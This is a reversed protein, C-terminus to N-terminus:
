YCRTNVSLNMQKSVAFTDIKEKLANAHKLDKNSGMIIPIKFNTM